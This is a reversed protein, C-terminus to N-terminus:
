PQGGRKELDKLAHIVHRLDNTASHALEGIGFQKFGAAPHESDELTRNLADSLLDLLAMTKSLKLEIEIANM